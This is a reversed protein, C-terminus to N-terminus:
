FRAVSAEDRMVPLRRQARVSVEVARYYTVVKQVELSLNTVDEMNTAVGAEEKAQLDDVASLLAECDWCGCVRYETGLHVHWLSQSFDFGERLSDKAITDDHNVFRGVMDEMAEAYQKPSSCQHTHWVLDIDLTPVITRGPCLRLLHLFDGYRHIARSLTGGLAPSRIWLHNNMKDVFESQRVVADKLKAALDKDAWAFHDRYKQVLAKEHGVIPKRPVSFGVFPTLPTGVTDAWTSFEDLLDAHLGTEDRFCRADADKLTFTWDRNRIAEHIKEWPMPLRYLIEKHCLSRMFRPNLMFAHWVM